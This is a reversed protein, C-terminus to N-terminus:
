NYSGSLTTHFDDALDIELKDASLLEGFHLLVTMQLRSQTERKEQTKLWFVVFSLPELYRLNEGM